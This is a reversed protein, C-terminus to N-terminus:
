RHSRWLIHSTALTSVHTSSSALRPDACCDVCHRVADTRSVEQVHGQMQDHEIRGGGRGREFEAVGIGHKFLRIDHELIAIM